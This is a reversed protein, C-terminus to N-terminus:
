RRRWQNSESLYISRHKTLLRPVSTAVLFVKFAAEKKRHRPPASSSKIPPLAPYLPAERNRDLSRIAQVNQRHVEHVTDDDDNEPNVLDGYEMSNNREFISDQLTFDPIDEAILSCAVFPVLIFDTFDRMTLCNSDDYAYGEFNEQDATILYHITDFLSQELQHKDENEAVLRM